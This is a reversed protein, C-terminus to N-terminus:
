CFRGCRARGWRGSRGRVRGFNGGGFALVGSPRSRLFCLRCFGGQRWGGRAPLKHLVHERLEFPEAAVESADVAIPTHARLERKVPEVTESRKLKRETLRLLCAEISQLTPLTRVAGDLLGDRWADLLTRRDDGGPLLGHRRAFRHLGTGRSGAMGLFCAMGRVATRALGGM